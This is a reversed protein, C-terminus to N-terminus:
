AYALKFIDCCKVCGVNCETFRLIGGRICLSIGMSTCDKRKYNDPPMKIIRMIETLAAM